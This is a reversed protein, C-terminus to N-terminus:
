RPGAPLELGECPNSSCWRRQPARAYNFLASLIGVYNRISKPGVGRRELVAVLDVVNEHRIAGMTKDAFFPELHVRLASAVATRTATKRGARKLHALYLEGAQAITVAHRDAGTTPKVEAMLHRMRAEAQARTLGERSGPARKPGLARRVQRGGARWQGYWTERGASDTRAFLSGTGYSRRESV